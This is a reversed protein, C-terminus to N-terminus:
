STLSLLGRSTESVRSEAGRQRFEEYAKHMEPSYAELIRDLERQFQSEAQRAQDGFLDMISWDAAMGEIDRTATFRLGYELTDLTSANVRSTLSRLAREYEDASPENMFKRTLIQDTKASRLREVLGLMDFNRVHFVKGVFLAYWDLRPDLFDYDPQGLTGKLRGEKLLREKIPTGSYPRMKCFNTPCSGDGTVHRLFDVNQAVSEVTSDPDFLMFGIEFTLGIRKLTEIASLNQAVTVQKNLTKLGQENGAEVGLYVAILGRDRCRMILEQDIDDVRCAIRWAITDSLGREDLAALFEEVWQRQQKARAAFDDDQFIFFQVGKDNHLTQMEDAVSKPSRIRRLPGPPSGYFQRISCFSCNHRCGRSALMSAFRIGRPISLTHTRSPLPLTDLDPILPRLPNCTIESGRRFALGEISPWAQPMSLKRLLELTTLEGEFRVVSDIHPMAELVRHPRLSPFHGGVTFHANVGAARLGAALRAFDDLTYQFIISFGVLRPTHKEIASLV